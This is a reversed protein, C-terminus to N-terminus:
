FDDRSPSLPVQQASFGLRQIDTEDLPVDRVDFASEEELKTKLDMLQPEEIGVAALATSLHQWSPHHVTPM